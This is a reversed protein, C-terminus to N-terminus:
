FKNNYSHWYQNHALHEMENRASYKTKQILLLGM